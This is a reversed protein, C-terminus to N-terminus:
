RRRCPSDAKDIARGALAGVGAGLITGLARDGRAVVYGLSGGALGGIILGETGKDCKRYGDYERGYSDYIQGSQTRYYRDGDVDYARDGRNKKYWGKHHGRDSHALAPTVASAMLAIAALSMTFKQLM